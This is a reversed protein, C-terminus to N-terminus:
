CCRLPRSYPCRNEDIMAQSLDSKGPFHHHISAKRIGIARSLDAYSFDVYGKQHVFDLGRHVLTQRTSQM